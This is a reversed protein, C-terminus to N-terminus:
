REHWFNFDMHVGFQYNQSGDDPAETVNTNNSNRVSACFSSGFTQRIKGDFITRLAEKVSLRVVSSEAWVTFQIQTLALSGGGVQNHVGEETSTTFVIYPLSVEESAKEPFINDGVIAGLAADAALTTYIGAELTDAM